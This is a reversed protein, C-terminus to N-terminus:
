AYTSYSEGAKKLLKAPLQETKIKFVIIWGRNARANDAYFTAQTYGLKYAIVRGPKMLILEATITQNLLLFGRSKWM